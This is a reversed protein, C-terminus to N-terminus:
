AVAKAVVARLAKRYRAARIADLPQAKEWANVRTRHIGLADALAQQEVGLRKREALLEPGPIPTPLDSLDEM